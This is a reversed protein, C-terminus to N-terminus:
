QPDPPEYKYPVPKTADKKWQPWEAVLESALGCHEEFDSKKPVDHNICEFIENITIILDNISNINIHKYIIKLCQESFKYNATRIYDYKLLNNDKIKEYNNFSCCNLYIYLYFKSELKTDIKVIDSNRNFKNIARKLSTLSDILKDIDEVPNSM